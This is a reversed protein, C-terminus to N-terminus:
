RACWNCSCGRPHGLDNERSARFNDMITQFGSPNSFRHPDHANRIREDNQWYEDAFRNARRNAMFNSFFGPNHHGYQADFAAQRKDAEQAMKPDIGYALAKWFGM